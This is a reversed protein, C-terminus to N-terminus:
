ARKLLVVLRNVEKQEVDHHGHPVARIRQGAHPCELRVDRHDECSTIRWFGGREIPNHFIMSHNQLVMRERRM